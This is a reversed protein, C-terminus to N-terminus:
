NDSAAAATCPVCTTTTPVVELRAASIPRECRECVGYTGEHIRALAENISELARSHTACAPDDPSLDLMQELKAEFTGRLQIVIFDIDFDDRTIRDTVPSALMAPPVPTSTPSM